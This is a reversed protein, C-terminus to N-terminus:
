LLLLKQSFNFHSLRGIECANAERMLPGTNGAITYSHKKSISGGPIKPDLFPRNPGFHDIKHESLNVGQKPM